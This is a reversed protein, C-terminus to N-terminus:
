EVWGRRNYGERKELWSARGREGRDEGTEKEIEEKKRV